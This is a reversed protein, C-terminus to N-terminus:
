PKLKRKKESPFEGSGNEQINAEKYERKEIKIHKERGDPFDRGSHLDIACTLM